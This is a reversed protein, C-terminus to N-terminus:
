PPPPMGHSPGICDSRADIVPGTACTTPAIAMTAQPRPMANESPPPMIRFHRHTTRPRVMVNLAVDHPRPKMPNPPPRRTHVLLPEVPELHSDMAGEDGGHEQDTKRAHHGQDEPGRDSGKAEPEPLRPDNGDPNHEVDPSRCDDFGIGME